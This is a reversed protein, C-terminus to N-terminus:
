LMSSAIPVTCRRSWLSVSTATTSTNRKMCMSVIVVTSAAVPSAKQPRGENAFTARHAEKLYETGYGERKETSTHHNSSKQEHKM